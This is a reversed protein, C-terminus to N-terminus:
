TVLESMLLTAAFSKVRVAATAVLTKLTGALQGVGCREDTNATSCKYETIVGAVNSPSWDNALCSFTWRGNLTAADRYIDKGMSKYFRFCKGNGPGVVAAQKVRFYADFADDVTLYVGPTYDATYVIWNTPTESTQAGAKFVPILLLLAFLVSIFRIHMSEGSIVHNAAKPPMVGLHPHM